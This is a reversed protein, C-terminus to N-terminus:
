PQGDGPAHGLEADIWALFATYREEPTMRRYTEDNRYALNWALTFTLGADKGLTATEALPDGTGDEGFVAPVSAFAEAPDAGGKVMRHWLLAGIACVGEGGNDRIIAALKEREEERAVRDIQASRQPWDAGLDIGAEAMNAAYQAAKRSLEEDSLLPARKDVGGVTCVAGEILRKEPLALLAERLDALAKRGRRGKLATRSNHEWRGHDLAWNEDDYDCDTFRSM